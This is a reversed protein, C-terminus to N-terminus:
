RSGPQGGTFIATPRTASPKIGCFTLIEAQKYMAEFDEETIQYKERIEETMM